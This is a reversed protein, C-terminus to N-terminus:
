HLVLMKPDKPPSSERLWGPWVDLPWAAKIYGDHIIGLWQRLLKPALVMAAEQGEAGRFTLRVAQDFKTFDVSRALWAASDPTARVPAQPVVEARAAHQAFSQLVDARPLDAGPGQRELWQLLPPVLRQLLRFTVWIVIPSTNEVLGSLRIRDEVDIYETTLRELKTM